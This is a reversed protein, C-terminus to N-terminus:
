FVYFNIWVHLNLIVQSPRIVTARTQQLIANISNCYTGFTMSVITDNISCQARERLQKTSM